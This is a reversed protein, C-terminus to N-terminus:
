DDFILESRGHLERENGRPQIKVGAALSVIAKLAQHLALSPDTADPITPELASGYGVHEVLGEETFRLSGGQPSQPDYGLYRLALARKATSQMAKAGLGRYLIETGRAASRHAALAERDLVLAALRRFVGHANPKLTTLLQHGESLKSAIPANGELVASIRDELVERQLAVLLVNKAVGYYIAAAKEEDNVDVRTIEVKRYPKDKAWTVLGPAAQAVMGRIATLTAALMLRNSIHIAGWVPLTGLIREPNDEALAQGSAAPVLMPEDAASQADRPSSNEPQAPLSFDNDAVALAFDWLPARDAVGLQVWDGVFGIGLDKDGGFFHLGDEALTRLRSGKGIALTFAAGDPVAPASVAGDGVMQVMQDYDRNSRSLQNIPLITLDLTLKRADDSLMLRILTPDVGGQWGSEYGRKFSAYADREAESIRPQQHDIVPTLRFATGWPSSAGLEPAWRIPSGDFHRLDEPQLWPSDALEQMSAPAHGQMWGFLLAAANVTQLEVQARVRRAEIIKSRAGVLKAMLADGMFIFASERKQDYPKVTRAYQYDASTALNRAHGDQVSLLHELAGPSNSLLTIGPLEVQYRRVGGDSTQLLQASRGRIEVRTDELDKHESAARKGHAQLVSSLLAQNRTEFVLSVDSGERLYPDSLVLAVSGVAVHGLKEALGDIHLALQERYREQLWQPGPLGEIGQMLQAFRDDLRQSLTILDRLSGFEIVICDAPLHKSLPDLKVVSAKPLTSILAQYDRSPLNVGEVSELSITAQGAEVRGLGRRAAMAALLQSRGTYFDMLESLDGSDNGFLEQQYSDVWAPIATNAKRTGRKATPALSEAAHLLRGASFEAFNSQTEEAAWRHFWRSQEQLFRRATGPRNPAASLQELTLEREFGSAIVYHARWPRSSPCGRLTLNLTPALPQNGALRVLLTPSTTATGTPRITPQQGHKHSSNATRTQEPSPTLTEVIQLARDSALPNGCPEYDDGFIPSSIELSELSVELYIADPRVEKGTVILALPALQKRALHGARQLLRPQPIPATARASLAPSPTAVPAPTPKPTPRAAACSLLLVSATTIPGAGLRLWSRGRHAGCAGTQTGASGRAM